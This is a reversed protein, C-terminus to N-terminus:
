SGPLPAGAARRDPKFSHPSERWSRYGSRCRAASWGAGSGTVDRVRGREVGGRARTCPTARDPDMVGEHRSSYDRWGSAQCQERVFTTFLINIDFKFYERM